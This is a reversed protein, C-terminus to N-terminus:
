RASHVLKSRLCLMEVGGGHAAELKERRVERYKKGKEWSACFCSLIM